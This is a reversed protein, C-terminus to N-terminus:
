GERRGCHATFKSRFKFDLNAIIRCHVETVSLCVSVDYCLRAGDRVLFSIMLMVLHDITCLLTSSLSYVQRRELRRYHVDPNFSLSASPSSTAGRLRKLPTSFYNESVDVSESDAAVWLM